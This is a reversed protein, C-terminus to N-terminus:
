QVGNTAEKHKSNRLLLWAFLGGLGLWVVMPIESVSKYLQWGVVSGWISAVGGIVLAIIAVPGFGIAGLGAISATPASNVFRIFIIEGQQMIPATLVVGSALLDQQLKDLEIQPMVGNVYLRLEGTDGNKFKPELEAIVPPHEKDGEAIVVQEM